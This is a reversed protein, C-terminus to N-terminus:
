VEKNKLMNYIKSKGINLKKAVLVVNNYKDLFHRIILRQYEELSKETSLLADFSPNTNFVINDESIERSNAMVVALEIVAKLERVNGPFPYSLLKQQAGPSLLFLEMQNERCFEQIFYKALLIIDSNRERLPPLAVPLGLLRYYLDERFNGKRVEEQLNRHTASIIRVDTKIIENSGVRVIEKEQLVRLLKVQMRPDMEGIEDLFLTGQHAEEFKGIRRSDAGTFAGKEHGFLESEMLERPIATLNVAVWKRKKRLSNYHIAKAIVEKGTGTEGTITVNINTNRAKDVLTFVKKMSESEGIINFTSYKKGLELRLNDIENKLEQNERINRITNWMRDKTDVNKVIYDYAGKKLLDVATSIDEQGSIIIVPINEYDTRLKQLVELGTADPLSYDLTILNPHKYMNKFLEKATKFVEVAIDPNLSLQHNLTKAYLMDDEVVFVKFHEM